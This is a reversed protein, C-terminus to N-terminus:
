PDARGAAPVAAKRFRGHPYLRLYENALEVTNPSEQARAAEIALARAEESLSGRPYLRLYDRLLRSARAPDQDQRLAKVAEMLASPNEGHGAHTRSPVPGALRPVDAAPVEPAPAVEAPASRAHVVPPPPAVQPAPTAPAAARRKMWRAGLTAATSAGAVLLLIGFVLAPRALRASRAISRREPALIAQLSSRKQGEPLATPSAASLLDILQAETEDSATKVRNLPEM